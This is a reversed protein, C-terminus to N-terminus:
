EVHRVAIAPPLAAARKAPGRSALAALALVALAFVGLIFWPPSFPVGQGRAERWWISHAVVLGVGTGILLGVGSTLTSELIFARRVDKEEFGLARLTGIDRMREHVARSALFGTAALGVFLGLALFAEFVLVLAQISASIRAVEEPISTFTLGDEAYLATLRHAVTDPDGGEVVRVYVQTAQPFGMAAVHGDDLFTQFVFQSRVGGAVVYERPSTIGTQMTIRDGARIGNTELAWEPFLIAEGRAVALWADRDTAYEAARESLEYENAEAFGDTVGLFQRSGAEMPLPEGGRTVNAQRFEVHRPLFDAREVDRAVDAPLPRPFGDARLAGEGVVTYGAEEEAITGGFVVFLTGMVTVVVVVISIMAMTLGAPRRRAILYKLAVFSGRRPRGDTSLRRSLAEYPASSAVALAAFGLALVAGRALTLIPDLEGADEPWETVAYLSWAVHGVGLLAPLLAFRVRGTAATGAAVAALMMPVGVLRSHEGISLLAGLALLAGALVFGTRRRGKPDDPIGRIARAPDLRAFRLSALGITVLPVLSGVLFALAITRPSVHLAFLPGGEAAAVTAIGFLLGWLIVLGLLLGALAAGAAYLAGELTMSLAVEGRTLGLARAIGLEARREEVLASFLTFALLIAALLTFAGMVLLFGTIESGAEQADAIRDAKEARVEVDQALDEPLAARLAAVAEYPDGTARYYGHTAQGSAGLARQLDSLPVLATPRGTIGARGEEAAVGAVRADLTVVATGFAAPLYAVGAGGAYVTPLDSSVRITWTGAEVPPEVILRVPSAASENAFAIGSPSTAVVRVTGADGTWSVEAGMGLADARVEITHSQQAPGPAGSAGVLQVIETDVDADAGPPPVRLRVRDGPRADLSEALSASLVVEGPGPEPVQAGDLSPLPGLAAAERGGIGRISAFAEALGKEPHVASGVLAMSASGEVGLRRADPGDALGDAVAADFPRGSVLVIDVPGFQALAARELSVAISEGMGLGTTLVTTAVLLGLVARLTQAKHRMAYRRALRGLLPVRSVLGM